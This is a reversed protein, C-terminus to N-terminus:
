ECSNTVTLKFLSFSLERDDSSRPALTHPRLPAPGNFSVTVPKGAEIPATGQIKYPGAGSLTPMSGLAKGDVTIAMKWNARQALSGFQVAFCASAPVVKDALPPLIIVAHRERSWVGWSEPQQWGAALARSWPSQKGFTLNMPLRLVASSAFRFAESQYPADIFNVSNKSFYALSGFYCLGICFLAAFLVPGRIIM